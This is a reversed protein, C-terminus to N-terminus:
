KNIRLQYVKKNAVLGDEPVVHIHVDLPYMSTSFVAKDFSYIWCGDGSSYTFSGSNIPVAGTAPDQNNTFVKVTMSSVTDDLPSIFVRYQSRWWANGDTVAFMYTSALMASTAGVDVIYWAGSYGKLQLYDLRAERSPEADKNITITYDKHTSKDQSTVVVTITSSGGAAPLNTIPVAVGSTATWGDTLATMGASDPLTITVNISTVAYSVGVTYGTVAPDFSPSLDATISGISGSTLGVSLGSLSASTGFYFVRITYVRSTVGDEATVNVGVTNMEKSEDLTVAASYDAASVAVPALDNLGVTVSAGDSGIAKVTVAPTEGKKVVLTYEAVEPDFFPSISFNLIELSKLAADSGVVPESGGYPLLSRKGRDLECGGFLLAATIMMVLAKFTQKM